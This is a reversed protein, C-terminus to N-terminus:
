DISHGIDCASLAESEIGCVSGYTPHQEHREPIECAIKSVYRSVGPLLKCCGINSCNFTVTLLDRLFM